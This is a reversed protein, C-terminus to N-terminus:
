FETGPSPMDTMSLPLRRVRPTVRQCQVYPWIFITDVEVSCISLTIGTCDCNNTKFITQLSDPNILVVPLIPVNSDDLIKCSTQSFGIMNIPVHNPADKVM